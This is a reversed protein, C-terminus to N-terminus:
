KETNLSLLICVLILLESVKEKLRYTNVFLKNKFPSSKHLHCFFAGLLRSPILPYVNTKINTLTILM